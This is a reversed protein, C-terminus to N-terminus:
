CDAPITTDDVFNRANLGLGRSAFARFLLCRNAGNYRNQDAQIWADRAQVFTPNCPQIALADIYLRMWVINGESGDPNTLKQNSFGHERVLADYVNHLMNAWVQGIDHVQNFQRLNSYRLPNTQASTSYPFRRIGGPNNTVYTGLAFDRTQASNQAFWDAMADGWGEGLGGSELSQLCRATGGGTMRNTVGHAFEHIIIDNEMTGDRAPNTLTWVFMRCIGPSGDPPTAFQANNTGRADQVSIEVRDNGRGGRGFNNVQFNFARETFGYRYTVDHLSNIIYFANTKAAEINQRNNPNRRDDYRANFNLGRSTQTGVEQGRFAIVNNGSTDQSNLGQGLSHWGLPSAELDQPDTLTELGDLITEKTIPVVTYSAHAVFDNVSILDGSHADILAEYFAGSEKNQLQIIHTLAVDGGPKVFYELTANANNYTADLSEEIQPLVSRWSVTPSPDAIRTSALDVFSSGFSALKGGSFAVNSVANSFPIGNHSQRLYAFGQEGETFGSRWALQSRDVGLNDVVFNMAVDRWEQPVLSDPIATGNSGYVKFNTSPHYTEVRLNRGIRRTRHTSHKEFPVVTPAAQVVVLTASLVVAALLNSFMKSIQVM